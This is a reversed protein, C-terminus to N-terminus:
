QKKEYKRIDEIAQYISRKPSRWLIQKAKQPNWILTWLVGSKRKTIKYPIKIETVKQSLTILEKVSTWNWLCINFIDFLWKNNTINDKKFSSFEKIYQLALLHAEAVDMVHVFDRIKTGDKTEYDNGYIKLEEIEWKAVKLMYPLIESPIWKSSYWLKGSYHAGIADFCRLSIINFDKHLSMDKTIQESILNSTGLPSIPNIKDIESFPPLSNKTEYFEASSTLILNKINTKEMAKLLNITGQFNNEYYLFPQHISEEVSKRWACHVIWEIQNEYEELVHLLSKYNRIDIDYFNPKHQSTEHIKSLTELQSNSLNDLIIVEYWAKAFVVSIHSWIYWLWWTIIIKPITDEQESM